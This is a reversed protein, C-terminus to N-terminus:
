KFHIHYLSGSGSGSGSSSSPRPPASRTHSKLLCELRPHSHSGRGTEPKPRPHSIILYKLVPIPYPHGDWVRGTAMGLALLPSPWFRAPGFNARNKRPFIKTAWGTRFVPSTPGFLRKFAFFIPRVPSPRAM